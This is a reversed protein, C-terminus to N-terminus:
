QPQAQLIVLAADMEHVVPIIESIKSSHLVQEVMPVPSLIAVKGGRRRVAQAPLVLSRLGMSGIFSVKSMDILLRKASGAIVNMKLDVQNAGEIDLRGELTVKTVQGYIVESSINM